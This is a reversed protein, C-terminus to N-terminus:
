IRPGRGASRGRPRDRHHGARCRRSAADSRRKASGGRGTSGCRARQRIVRRIALHFRSSGERVLVKVQVRRAARLKRGLRGSIPGATGAALHAVWKRSEHGARVVLKVFCGGGADEPCRVRLRVRGHRIRLHSVLIGGRPAAPRRTAIPRLPNPSNPLPALTPCATPPGSDPLSPEPAPLRGPDAELTSTYGYSTGLANEAVLRYKYTGSAELGELNTFAASISCSAPLSSHATEADFVTRGYQWWYTTPLGNTYVGGQLAASVTESASDYSASQTYSGNPMAARGIGPAGRVASGSISGVGTPGDYGPGADCLYPAGAPCSGNAGSTIDNLAAADQYAWSPNQAPVGTIAYYAAILPASLSTGAMYRWGGLATSWVPIATGGDASLDAVARGPCGPDSQWAPKAIYPDCTSGSGGWAAETFGRLSPTGSTAATELTTGGAATTNPLSSPAAFAGANPQQLYGRDGSSAVTAIGPFNFTEFVNEEQLAWSDSIVRAGLRAATAQATAAGAAGESDVILIDCNPCLASVADMDLSTEGVNSGDDPALTSGGARNVMRFCGSSGACPPLNYFSRYYALDAEATPDAGLEVLAVTVGSGGAAALARLDYAERLWGPSGYPPEPMGLSAGPQYAAANAGANSGRTEIEAPRLRPPSGHIAADLAGGIIPTVAGNGGDAAISATPSGVLGCFALGVALAFAGLRGVWTTM